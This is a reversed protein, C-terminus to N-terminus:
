KAWLLSLDIEIADFPEIRVRAADRHTAIPAWGRGPVLSFVELTRRIPDVLWAHVVGERAYVPMKETRDHEETSPSLVECIWDPALPFFATEPLEPMREVRWGALDPVVAEVDGPSAPDPFHIEPEDLIHWGGPGGEGLDFPGSLKGGLRSAARTHPPAPRPLVHLVGGILEAVKNPPVAELDAYTARRRKEAPQGM